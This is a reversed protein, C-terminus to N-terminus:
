MFIVKSDNPKLRAIKVETKRFQEVGRQSSRQTGPQCLHIKHMWKLNTILVLTHKEQRGLFQTKQKDPKVEKLVKAVHALNLVRLGLARKAMDLRNAPSQGQKDKPNVSLTLIARTHQSSRRTRSHSCLPFPSTGGEKEHQVIGTVFSQTLLEWSCPAPHQGGM